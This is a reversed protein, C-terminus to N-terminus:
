GAADLEEILQQLEQALGSIVNIAEVSQAIGEATQNSIRNVEDTAINIEESTASQQEAATAISRVQDATREVVSLIDRLSTGAEGALASSKEVAQAAGNMTEINERTRGQIGSIAAGVEKTAGMTKEALKRVEDAVVAFGRGADGARAAEIAANLALLNTQDAIDDIVQMIAGIGDVQEGLEALSKKMTETRRSVDGSAQEADAVIGAGRHALARASDAGEAADSANRAVELVTANMEAMATATESARHRQVDTGETISRAQESLRRASDAMQRSITNAHAAVGSMKELLEAVREKEHQASQMAKEAEESRKRAEESQREANEMSEMLNEVMLVVDRRLEELEGSFGHEVCAAHHGSAVARSCDRLKGLPLIISRILQIIGGVLLIGAVLGVILNTRELTSQLKAHAATQADIVALLLPDIEEAIDTSRKRDAEIMGELRVYEEFARSYEGLLSLIAAKESGAVKDSSAVKARMDAMDKQFKELYDPDGRIIFDKERRRLMLMAALLSDDGRSTVVSEVGHITNRLKGRLGQDETLGMRKVSDAAQLFAELHLRIRDLVPALEGALGSDIRQATELNKQASAIDATAQERAAPNRKALFEQEARRSQLLYLKATLVHRASDTARNLIPTGVLNVAFTASLAAVAVLGLLFLRTRITM